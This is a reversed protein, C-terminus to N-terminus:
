KNEFCRCCICVFFISLSKNIKKKKLKSRSSHNYSCRQIVRQSRCIFENSMKRIWHTDLINEITAMMQVVYHMNTVSIRVWHQFKIPYNLLVINLGLLNIITSNTSLYLTYTNYTGLLKTFFM